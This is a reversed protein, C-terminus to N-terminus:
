QMEEKAAMGVRNKRNRNQKTAGNNHPLLYYTSGAVTATQKLKGKKSEWYFHYLEEM